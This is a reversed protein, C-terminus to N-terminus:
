AGLAEGRRARHQLGNILLLLVFSAVLGLMNWMTASLIGEALSGPDPAPPRHDIWLGDPM